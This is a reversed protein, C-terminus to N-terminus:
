RGEWSELEQESMPEFFDPCTKVQNALVGMKFKNQSIPVLRVVPTDGKAIIVEEGKLAADILKSLQSKAHHIKFQM